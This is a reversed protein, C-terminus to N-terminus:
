LRFLVALTLPLPIDEQCEVCPRKVEGLRPGPSRELIAEILAERDRMKLNKATSEGLAPVGGISKVCKSLLITNLRAYNQDESTMVARQVEGTPLAVQAPQKASPLDLTFTRPESDELAKIPVESCLLVVDQEARCSPCRVGALNIEDGFTVRRIAVVLADRDGALLRDLLDKSAPADGVSEVGRQLIVDMARGWTTGVRALAEEDEGNLERVVAVREISGDLNLLGGPLRVHPDAADALVPAEDAEAAVDTTLSAVLANAGAPDQAANVTAGDTTSM